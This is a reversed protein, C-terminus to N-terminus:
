KPEKINTFLEAQEKKFTNYKDKIVKYLIEYGFMYFIYTACMVLSFLYLFRSEYTMAITAMVLIAVMSLMSVKTYFEARQWLYRIFDM